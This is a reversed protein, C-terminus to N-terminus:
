TREVALTTPDEALPLGVGPPYSCACMDGYRGVRLFYVGEVKAGWLEPQPALLSIFVTKSLHIFTLFTFLILPLNFDLWTLVRAASHWLKQTVREVRPSLWNHLTKDYDTYRNPNHSPDVNSWEWQIAIDGNVCPLRGALVTTCATTYAMPRALPLPRNEVGVAGLGKSRNEHFKFYLVIERIRGRVCFTLPRHLTPPRPLYGTQRM